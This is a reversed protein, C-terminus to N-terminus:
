QSTKWGNSRVSTLANNLSPVKRKIISCLACARPGKQRPEVNLAATGTDSRDWQVFRIGAEGKSTRVRSSGRNRPKGIGSALQKRAKMKPIGYPKYHVMSLTCDNTPSVTQAVEISESPESVDNHSFLSTKVANFVSTERPFEDSAPSPYSQYENEAITHVRTEPDQTCCNYVHGRGLSHPATSKIRLNRGQNSIDTVGGDLIDDEKTTNLLQQVSIM